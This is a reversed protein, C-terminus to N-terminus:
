APPPTAAQPAGRRRVPAAAHASPSFPAAAMRQLVLFDYALTCLAVHHHLGPWTRGEFHALGLEGKLQAYDQEIRWRLKVLRALAPLPLAELGWALVYRTPAAEAEPWELLLEECCLPPPTGRHWDPAAVVRLRAFRSSQPGRTGERWTVRHWAQAPLARAIAAASLPCQASAGLGEAWFVHTSKIHLAYARGMDQLAARFALVDGYAADALVPVEGGLGAVDAEHLQALALQWKELFRVEEPVHAKQRRAADEVWERPLYLRMCLPFSLAEGVASVSVLAQCREVKGVSGCWQRAVGVSHVGTKKLGTDDVVHAQVAGAPLAQLLAHAARHMLVTHSWHAYTVCESLRQRGAEVEHTGAAQAARQAMPVVSKRGEGQLLGRTYQGMAERRERRGMGELLADLWGDLQAELGDMERATMDQCCVGGAERM